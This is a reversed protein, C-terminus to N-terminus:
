ASRNMLRPKSACRIRRRKNISHQACWTSQEISPAQVDLAAFLETLAAGISDADGPGPNAAAVKLVFEDQEIRYDSCQTDALMMARRVQDPFVPKLDKGHVSPLWLVDDQRGEISHLRLSARGCICPEHSVHLVDDMRFRIFMQTSRSFDTVLASFRDREDDLWQPEFYICEENLHISGASCSFGLVGETCQYIQQPPRGWTGAIVVSDDPELCEAVNIVQQPQIAIQCRRQCEAIHRLVSAPAVLVDPQYDTLAPLYADVPRMLDFFRFRIRWGDLSTYLNSNARLFFAIRLPRALPNIVRAFAQPSIMRGLIAGAWRSREHATVLFLNPRGSTGSSTGVTVGQPLTTKFDRNSEATLAVARASELSIGAANFDAFAGLMTSKDVIPLEHLSLAQRAQYFRAQGAVRLFKRIQRQQFDVLAARTKFRFGWRHQVFARVFTWVHLLAARV